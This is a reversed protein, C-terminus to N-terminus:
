PRDCSAPCGGSGGTHTIYLCATCAITDLSCTCLISHLLRMGLTGPIGTAWGTHGCALADTRRGQLAGAAHCPPASVRALLLGRVLRPARIDRQQTPKGWPHRTPHHRGDDAPSPHLTTTHVTRHQKQTPPPSPAAHRRRPPRRRHHATPPRGMCTRCRRLHPCRHHRHGSSGLQSSTCPSRLRARHPQHPLQAPPPATVRHSARAPHRAATCIALDCTHSGVYLSQPHQHRAINLAKCACARTHHRPAIRADDDIILSSDLDAHKHTVFRRSSNNVVVRDVKDITEHLCQLIVFYLALVTLMSSSSSSAANRADRRSLSPAAPRVLTRVHASM